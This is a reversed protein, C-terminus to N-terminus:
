SQDCVYPVKGITLHPNHSTRVGFEERIKMLMDCKVRLYLFTDNSFATPQNTVGVDISYKFDVKQGHYKKWLHMKDDKPKEGRIVSIHADWSQRIIPDSEVKFPNFHTNALHRYYSAIDEEVQIVCWWENRKKLGTRRPDYIITGTAEFEFNM